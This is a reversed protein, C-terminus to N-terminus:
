TLMFATYNLVELSYVNNNNHIGIGYPYLKLTEMNQIYKDMYICSGLPISEPDTPSIAVQIQVLTKSWEAVLSFFYTKTKTVKQHQRSPYQRVYHLSLRNLFTLPMDNLFSTM